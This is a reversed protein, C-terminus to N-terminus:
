EDKVIYFSKNINLIKESKNSFFEDVAKNAGPCLDNNYDDFIIIGGKVVKEYFFNLCEIHSQYNDVDLHVFKFKKNLINHSTEQPFIGKYIFCNQYQKFLEVISNYDCENFTGKEWIGDKQEDFFPMGCFTDFLYINNNKSNDCIIKATGGRYVGVEAIDADIHLIKNLLLTFDRIQNQPVLSTGYNINLIGLDFTQKKILSM